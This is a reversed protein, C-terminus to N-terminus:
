GPRGREAAQQQMRRETAKLVSQRRKHTAEYLRVVAVEEATAGALRQEIARATMSAYGDWPESVDLEAHAGDEAGAEAFEAVLTPEESVHEDQEDTVAGGDLAHSASADHSPGPVDVPAPGPVDVPAPGPVEVPATGPVDVPASAAGNSSHPRPAPERPPAEPRRPATAGPAEEARPEDATQPFPEDGGDQGTLAGLVDLPLRAARLGIRAARLGITVPLALLRATM